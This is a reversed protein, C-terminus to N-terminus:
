KLNRVRELQREIEKNRSQYMSDRYIPILSDQLNICITDLEGRYTKMTERYISDAYKREQISLDPVEFECSPLIMIISFLFVLAAKSSSNTKKSKIKILM